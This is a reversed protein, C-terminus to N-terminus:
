EFYGNVDLVVHVTGNSRNEVIVYGNPTLSVFAGNARTQGAAFTIVDLLGYSADVSLGGPAKAGTATVNASVALATPPVGCRGAVGLARQEYSALSPAAASPGQTERTDFVRCPPLPHFTSSVQVTVGGSTGYASHCGTAIM